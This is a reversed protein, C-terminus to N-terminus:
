AARESLHRAKRIANKDAIESKGEYRKHPRVDDPWDNLHNRMGIHKPFQGMKDEIIENDIDVEEAALSKSDSSNISLTHFTSDIHASDIRDKKSEPNFTNSRSELGFHELPM